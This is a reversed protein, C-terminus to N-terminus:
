KVGDDGFIQVKLAGVLADTKNAVNLTAEDLKGYQAKIAELTTQLSAYSSTRDKDTAAVYINLADLQLKIPELIPIIQEKTRSLLEDRDGRSTKISTEMLSAKANEIAADSQAKVMEMSATNQAKVMEIAETHTKEMLELSKAHANKQLITALITGVVLGILLGIILFSTSLTTIENM